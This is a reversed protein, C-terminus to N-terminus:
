KASSSKAKGAKALQQKTEDGVMSSITSAVKTMAGSGQKSAGDVQKKVDQLMGKVTNSGIDEVQANTLWRLIKDPLYHILEFAQQVISIYLTTYTLIAFYFLMINTWFGYMTKSRDDTIKVDKTKNESWSKGDGYVVPKMIPTLHDMDYITMNFGANMIWVGVYSLSIGLVYGIVMLAPRLFMNLLIMLAQEAKGFVESGEPHIAGLAVVPAAAMAEIVSIFWGIGAFSFILFPVFPVYYAATFGVGIMVGMWTTVLPMVIIIVILGPPFMAAIPLQLLIGIWANGVGDIFQTGMVAISTIPNVGEMRMVDLANNFIDASMGIIPSMMFSFFQMTPPIMFALFANMTPVFLGNYVLTSIAGAMGFKGGKFSMKGMRSVSSNPNFALKDEDRLGANLIIKQGPLLLSNANELYTYATFHEYSTSSYVDTYIPPQTSATSGLILGGIYSLSGLHCFPDDIQGENCAGISQSTPSSDLTLAKDIDQFSWTGGAYGTFLLGSDSDTPAAGGGKKEMVFNNLLAIQFFYAGAMIWGSNKAGDIFSRLKNYRSAKDGASPGTLQNLTLTPLMVGNYAAVADALEKGNFLVPAQSTTGWETCSNPDNYAAGSLRTLCGTSDHKYDITLPYGYYNEAYIDDICGVEACDISENFFPANNVLSMSINLLATYMQHVAITRSNKIIIQQDQTLTTDEYDPKYVNWKINGCIGNLDHYIGGGTADPPFNPMSVSLTTGDGNSDTNSANLNETSTINVSSVFDPVQEDCFTRWSSTSNSGCHTDTPNNVVDQHYKKYEIELTKMCTQGIVIGMAANTIAGGGANSSKSSDMQKQVIVGGRNLYDLAAGWISDAAGIGQLIIWMVLVQMACYGSAKPMLLSLGVTSRIPIMMSSWKQGMLQGDNATNLTSVILTYLIIIGGFSLIAANFVGFMQGIIQSGSGALVGDVVGFINGLFVVSYDGPTPSFSVDYNNLGEIATAFASYIFFLSFFLTKIFRQTNMRM